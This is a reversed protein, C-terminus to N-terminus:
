LAAKLAALADTEAQYIALLQDHLATFLDLVASDALPFNLNGERRLETIRTTLESTQQWASGGQLRVQERQFLLARTDRLLPVADPLASEALRSWLTSLARYHSIPESLRPNGTVETAETLFDAYLGRLGGPAGNLEISEYLSILTSMLGRRDAFVKLWGKKGKADIMTKAWKRIAPLSFSESPSSLYEVQDQLGAHIAAPLDLAAPLKDIVVLRSKYSSIIARADALTAADIPIPQAALDDLFYTDGERGCISVFHGIHAIMTPPMHMSPLSARDVWAVVPLGRDLAANLTQAATKQSGTDPMSIAIGLRDALHQYYDMPYNWRNQFGLVLVKTHHEQFEWLIYGIGLGGAIGFVLAESLPMGQSHLINAFAASEPHVGGVRKYGSVTVM